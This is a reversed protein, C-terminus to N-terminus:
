ASLEGASGMSSQSDPMRREIRRVCPTRSYSSVRGEERASVGVECPAHKVEGSSVAMASANPAASSPKEIRLSASSASRSAASAASRSAASDSPAALESALDGLLLLSGSSVPASEIASRAFLTERDCTICLTPTDRKSSSASRARM